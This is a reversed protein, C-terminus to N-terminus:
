FALPVPVLSAIATVGDEEYGTFGGTCWISGDERIACMTSPDNLGELAVADDIVTMEVPTPFTGTAGTGATGVGDMGWCAVTGDGRRACNLGGTSAFDVVGTLGPVPAALLQCPYASSVGVVCTDPNPTGGTFRGDGWCMVTGDGLAACAARNAVLVAVAGTVGVVQVPDFSYTTDEVGDGLWGALRGGWCWVEGGAVACGQGDELSVDTVDTLAIAGPTSGAGTLWNAGDGWCSLAGGDRVACARRYSIELARVGTLGTPSVPDAHYPVTPDGDGDASTEGWCSVTGDDHVACVMGYGIAVDVAAAIGPVTVPAAAFTRTAPEVGLQATDNRGWCRVAGTDTVVCGNGNALGLAAAAVGDGPGADPAAEDFRRVEPALCGALLVAACALRTM